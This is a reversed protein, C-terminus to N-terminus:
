LPRLLPPRPFPPARLLWQSRYLTHLVATLTLLRPHFASESECFLWSRVNMSRTVIEALFEVAAQLFAFSESDKEIRLWCCLLRRRSQRRSRDIVMEAALFISVM